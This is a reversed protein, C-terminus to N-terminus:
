GSEGPQRGMMEGQRGCAPQLANLQIQRDLLFVIIQSCLLALVAALVVDRKMRRLEQKVGEVEGSSM